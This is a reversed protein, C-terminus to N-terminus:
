DHENLADRKTVDVYLRLIARVARTAEEDSLARVSAAIRGEGPLEEDAFRLAAKIQALSPRLEDPFDDASLHGLYVAAGKLRERLPGLGSALSDVVEYLKKSTYDLGMKNTSQQIGRWNKSRPTLMFGQSVKPTWPMSAYWDM